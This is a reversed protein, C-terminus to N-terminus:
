DFIDYLSESDEYKGREEESNDYINEVYEYFHEESERTVDCLAVM